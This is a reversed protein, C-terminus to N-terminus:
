FIIILKNSILIYNRVIISTRRQNALGKPNDTATIQLNYAVQKERDLTANERISITGQFM